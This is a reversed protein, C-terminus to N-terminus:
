LQPSVFTFHSCFQYPDSSCSAIKNCAELNTRAMHQIQMSSCSANSGATIVADLLLHYDQFSASISPVLWALDDAVILEDAQVKDCICKGMKCQELQQMAAHSHHM